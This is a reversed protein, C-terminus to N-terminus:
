QEAYVARCEFIRHEWTDPGLRCLDCRVDKALYGRAVRDAKTWLGGAVWTAIIAKQQPSFSGARPELWAAVHGLHM